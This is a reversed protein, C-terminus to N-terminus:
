RALATRRWLQSQFAIEHLGVGSKLSGSGIQFLSLVSHVQVQQLLLALISKTLILKTLLIIDFRILTGM